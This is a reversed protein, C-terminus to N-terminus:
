KRKKKEWMLLTGSAREKKEQTAKEGERKKGLKGGQVLVHEEICGEGLYSPEGRKQAPKGTGKRGPEKKKRAREGGRLGASGGGKKRCHFDKGGERSKRERGFCGKKTGKGLGPEESMRGRRSAFRLTEEM